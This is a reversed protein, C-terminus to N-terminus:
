ITIEWEIQVYVRIAALEARAVSDGIAGATKEYEAVVVEITWPRGDRELVYGGCTYWVGLIWACCDRVMEGVTPPVGAEGVHSHLVQEVFQRASEEPPHGDPGFSGLFEELVPGVSSASMEVQGGSMGLEQSITRIFCRKFERSREVALAPTSLGAHEMGHILRISSPAYQNQTM